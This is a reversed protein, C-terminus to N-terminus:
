DAVAICGRVQVEDLEKVAVIENPDAVLGGRVDVRTEEKAVRATESWHCVAIEVEPHTVCLKRDTRQGGDCAVVVVSLKGAADLGSEDDRTPIL